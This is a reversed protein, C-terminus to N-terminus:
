NEESVTGTRADTWKKREASATVGVGEDKQGDGM